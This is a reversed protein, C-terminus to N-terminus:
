LRDLADLALYPGDVVTLQDERLLRRLQEVPVLVIRIDEDAETEQAQM